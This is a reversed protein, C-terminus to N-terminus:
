ARRWRLSDISRLTLFVGLVVFSVYLVLSKTDIVGKGFDGLHNLVSLYKLIEGFATTSDQVGAALLFLMISTAFTLVAAIIQNETLSSLFHGIAILAAGFLLMGLYGAMTPGLPPPPDSFIYMAAYYLLTFALMILFLTLTALFKGLVIHADSLPSTMLLEMTGRKREEAYMGMTLFPIVFLLITGMFGFFSQMVIAPVDFPVDGGGMQAAQMAQEFSQRIVGTLIINFAYGMIALFVGIAVYAIPSVFYLSLEKRFVAMINKM